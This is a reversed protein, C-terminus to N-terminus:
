VHDNYADRQRVGGKVVERRGVAVRAVDVKFLRKSLVPGDSHQGHRRGLKVGALAVEPASALRADGPVQFDEVGRALDLGVAEPRKDDERLPIPQRNIRPCFHTTNKIFTYM